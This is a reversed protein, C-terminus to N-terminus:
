LGHNSWREVLIHPDAQFVVRALLFTSVGSAYLVIFVLTTVSYRLGSEVLVLIVRVYRKPISHEVRKGNWILRGIILGTIIVNVVLTGGFAIYLLMALGSKHANVYGAGM